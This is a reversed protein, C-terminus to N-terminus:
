LWLCHKPLQDIFASSAFSWLPRPLIVFVFTSPLFTESVEPTYSPNPLKTTIYLYFGKM